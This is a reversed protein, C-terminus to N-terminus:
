PRAGTTRFGARYATPTVRVTRVFARRLAEPSGFGSRRAVVEIPQDGTELLNKAYELRVEEVYRAPTTGVQDRFMRTLQRVSVAARAALAALRHDGAPDLVVSDLVPRLDECGRCDARLRVSFQSQGGPRQMFVVLQKAVIRALRAGHDAEVMALALDIGATIGASSLFRGDQVFIADGDVEIAPFQRALRDALDWHTAARHNDLLGAEALVFAGACVSAVRDAKPALRRVQYLLREDAQLDPSGPVLLVAAEHDIDELAVDAGCRVGGTTTIDRGGLSALRVDYAAGHENAVTFVEVPGAVDLLRVGEYVVVVIRPGSM